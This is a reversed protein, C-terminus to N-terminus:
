ENSTAEDVIAVIGNEDSVYPKLNKDLLTKNAHNPDVFFCKHTKIVEGEPTTLEAPIPDTIGGCLEIQNVYVNVGAKWCHEKASPYVRFSPFGTVYVKQGRKLYPLLNGGNGNLTCDFWTTTNNAREAVRFTVFENGNSTKVEADAGLNGIFELRTM